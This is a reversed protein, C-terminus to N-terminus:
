TEGKQREMLTEGRGKERWREEKKRGEIDGRREGKKDINSM